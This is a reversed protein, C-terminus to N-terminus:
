KLRKIEEFKLFKVALSFFYEEPLRAQFAQEPTEARRLNLSGHPRNNYWGIFEDLTKFEFRFRDYLHFFKEIKGNSQPHKVRCLIHKIGNQDLFDKFGHEANGESDTKNACFQSGHDTIIERIIRLHGYKDIVQQVLRISNEKTANDFEGAALIKRSSDDIVACFHQSQGRKQHWDMHGASLSHDREYRVWPKRRKSKNPERIALGQEKLFMHIANHPVRIKHKAYLTKEIYVANKVTTYEALILQKIIDSIPKKPRGLQRKRGDIEGTQKWRQYVCRFWRPTISLHSSLWRQSHSGKEHARFAWEVKKKNKLKVM